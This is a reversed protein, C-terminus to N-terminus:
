CRHFMHEVNTRFTCKNVNSDNFLTYHQRKSPKPSHEFSKEYRFAESQMYWLWFLYWSGYEKISRLNSLRGAPAKQASLITNQAPCADRLPSKPPYFQRKLQFLRGAPAKQASLITNQWFTTGCPGKPCVFNSKSRSFRGAPTKIASLITNQAPFDDRLPRKPLINWLSRIWPRICM